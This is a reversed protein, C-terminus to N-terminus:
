YRGFEGHYKIAAQRYAEKADPLTDFYGIHNSKGNATIQVHYKSRRVNYYVGKVGLKNNSRVKSNRVNERHEAPRLNSWVNNSKDLDIHDVYEPINGTM